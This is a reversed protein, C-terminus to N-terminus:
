FSHSSSEYFFCKRLLAGVELTCQFVAEFIKPVDELMAGKYRLSSFM